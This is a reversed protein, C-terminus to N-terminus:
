TILYNNVVINDDPTTIVDYLHFLGKKIVLNNVRVNSNTFPNFLYDGVKLYQALELRNNVYLGEGSDVVLTGNNIIYENTTTLNFVSSVVVPQLEHTSLSYGLVTDGMKLDGIYITSGNALYAVSTGSVSSTYSKVDILFGDAIYNNFPTTVFDYVHHMNSYYTVNISTIKIYQGTIPDFLTDGIKAVYARQWRGNIFMIEDADVKLLKNFTYKNTVNKVYIATIVAPIM